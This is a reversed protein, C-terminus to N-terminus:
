CWPNLLWTPPLRPMSECSVLVLHDLGVTDLRLWHISHLLAFLHVGGSWHLSVGLSVLVLHDLDAVLPLDTRFQKLTLNLPKDSDLLELTGTTELDRRDTRLSGSHIRRPYGRSELFDLDMDLLVLIALYQFSM